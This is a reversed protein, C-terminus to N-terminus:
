ANKIAQRLEALSKDFIETARKISPADQVLDLVKKTRGKIIGTIINSLVGEHLQEETLKKSSAMTM